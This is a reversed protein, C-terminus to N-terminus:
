LVGTLWGYSADAPFADGPLYLLPHRADVWSSFRAHHPRADEEGGGGSLVVYSRM